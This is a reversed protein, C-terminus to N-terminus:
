ERARHQRGQAFVAMGTAAGKIVKKFTAKTGSFLGREKSESCRHGKIHVSGGEIKEEVEETAPL